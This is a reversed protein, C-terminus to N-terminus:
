LDDVLLSLLCEDSMTFQEHGILHRMGVLGLGRDILLCSLPYLVSSPFIHYMICTMDNVYVMLLRNFAYVDDPIFYDKNNHCVCLLDHM